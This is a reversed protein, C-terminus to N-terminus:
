QQTGIKKNIVIYSTIYFKRQKYWKVPAVDTNSHSSAGGSRHKISRGVCLHMCVSKTLGLDPGGVALNLESSSNVVSPKMKFTILSLLKTAVANHYLTTVRMTTMSWGKASNMWSWTGLLIIYDPNTATVFIHYRM